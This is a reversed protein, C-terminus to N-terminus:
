HLKFEFEAGFNRDFQSISNYKSQCTFNMKLFNNYKVRLMIAASSDSGIVAKVSAGDDIRYKIAAAGIYDAGGWKSDPDVGVNEVKISLGVKFRDNIKSKASFDASGVILRGSTSLSLKKFDFAAIYCGDVLSREELSFVFSAGLTMWKNSVGEISLLRMNDYTDIRGAYLDNFLRTSTTFSVPNEFEKRQLNLKINQKLSLSGIKHTYSAKAEAKNLDRSIIAFTKFNPILKKSKVMVAFPEEDSYTKFMFESKSFKRLTLLSACIDNSRTKEFYAMTKGKGLPFEVSASQNVDIKFLKYQEELIKDIM